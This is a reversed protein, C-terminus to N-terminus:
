AAGQGSKLIFLALARLTLATSLAPSGYGNVAFDEYEWGGWQQAKRVLFAKAKHLAEGEHDLIILAALAAATSLAGGFAGDEKQRKLIAPILTEAMKEHGPLNCRVWTDALLYYNILPNPFNATGSHAAGKSVGDQLFRILQATEVGSTGLFRLAATNVVPDFGAIPFGGEVLWGYGRGHQDIYTFYKGEQSRFRLLSDACTQLRHLREPNNLNDTLALAAFAISCSDPDIGSGRGLFRWIGGAEEQWRLFGRISKRAASVMRALAAASPTPLIELFRIDRFGSQPDFAALLDHVFASILVTRCYELSGSPTRRYSPIEGTRLQERQIAHIGNILLDHLVKRDLSNGMGTMSETSHGTTGGYNM